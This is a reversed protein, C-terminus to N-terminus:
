EKIGDIFSILRRVKIMISSEFSSYFIKNKEEPKISISHLGSQKINMVKLASVRSYKSFVMEIIDKKEIISEIGLASAKIKLRSIEFLANVEAPIAGFRDTLELALSRIEDENKVSLMRKYIEMKSSNDSIYSSPIFANYNLDIMTDTEERYGGKLKEVEERLLRTYVDFGVAVINGHQEQGLINGAGRIELDKLAINFGAGLNTYENIVFLRKQATETLSKNESYLFYAFGQRKSRGVRGKLQYLQSLGYRNADSIIITNANPIDLGSDIITTSVLVDYDGRV